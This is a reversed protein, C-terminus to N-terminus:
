VKGEGELLQGVRRRADELLAPGHGTFLHRYPLGRRHFATLSSVAQAYDTSYTPHPLCLATTRALPPIANLVADGAVVSGSPEHWYLTSGETHGPVWFARLGAIEDGDELRRVEPVHAPFRNELDAFLSVILDGKDFPMRPCALSRDLIGADARHAWSQLGFRERLFAANGAHDSHRHTLLLGALGHPLLGRRRLAAILRPREIVHGSDILWRGASGGDYLWVNSIRLPEIRQFPTDMM